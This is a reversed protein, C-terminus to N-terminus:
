PSCSGRRNQGHGACRQDSMLLHEGSRNIIELNRQQSQPFEADKQIMSSFGLIANLPTRLEHSMNALFVSKAKNAAEAEDRAKQLEIPSPLKLAQPIVWWIAFVTAAAVLAALAKLYGELWYLPSWITVISMLHTSTCTLIFANFFTLYLWRYHLDKRKWVFYAIAFPYSFYSLTM